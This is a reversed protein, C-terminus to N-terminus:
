IDGGKIVKRIKSLKNITNKIQCIEDSYHYDILLFVMAELAILVILATKLQEFNSANYIMFTIIAIFIATGYKGYCIIDGM